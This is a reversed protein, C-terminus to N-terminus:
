KAPIVIATTPIKPWKLHTLKCERKYTSWFTPAERKEKEKKNKEMLM